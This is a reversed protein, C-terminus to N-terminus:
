RARPPTAGDFRYLAKETRIYLAGGEAVPTAYIKESFARSSLVKWERSDALVSVVGNESAFYVKGDGAYPSSYYSGQGPLRQEQILEGSAADLKTVIGGDKVVWLIGNAVLPTSVYPAGRNRKWVLASKTLDGTGEPRFAVIGNEALRFIAAHEEWERQDLRGDDDLDMRYFRTRVEGDRIEQSTLKGDRDADWNALADRWALMSIRSSPDGGATWSGVFVLDLNPVPTPIAIRALGYAWWLKKGTELDYGALETAGAVLIETKGNHLRLAPTSYSKVAGPRETKWITQGTRRDIAILHSDLDHDELLLIKNGVLVPSSSAGYEDRFPGLPREWIMVGDLNYCILGFSGFFVYLREGDCAISASAPNGRTAEYPEIRTSPAPREWLPKGTEAELAVTALEHRTANFTTLFIRHGLITPTSNGTALPTTWRLTTADLRDPLPGANTRALGLDSRFYKFESAAASTAPSGRSAVTAIISWVGMSVLILSNNM